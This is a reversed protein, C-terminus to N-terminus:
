ENIHTMNETSTKDHAKIGGGHGEEELFTELGVPSIEGWVYGLTDARNLRMKYVTCSRFM